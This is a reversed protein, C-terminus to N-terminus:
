VDDIMKNKNTYRIVVILFLIGVLSLVISVKSCFTGTYQLTYVGTEKISTELFGNESQYLPINKGKSDKLQYGLYYIRPLEITIENELHTVEFDLYPVKDEKTEINATGELLLIDHTREEIYEYSTSYPLYEKQMGLSYEKELEKYLSKQFKIANPNNITSGIMILTFTVGIIVPIHIKTPIVFLSSAALLSFTISIMLVLRHPFQLIKIFPLVNWFCKLSLFFITAISISIFSIFIKKYEKPIKKRKLFVIGLLIWVEYSIFVPVGSIVGSNRTFFYDGFSFFRKDFLSAVPAMVQFDFVRYIGLSKHELLSFILPSSILLILFSSILLRLINKKTFFKKYYCIFIPFLLFTLFFASLYHSYISLVYGITFLIYFKKYNGGILEFLGNIIMPFFIFIMSEAYASRCFIDSIHYPFFLYLITALFSVKENKFLKQSLFYMSLGSLFFVFFSVINMGMIINCSFIKVIYASLLHFLPPYFLSSGYGFSNALTSSIPTPFLHNIHIREVYDEIQFYHYYFDHGYYNEKICMM